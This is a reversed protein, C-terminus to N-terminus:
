QIDEDRDKRYKETFDGSGQNNNNNSEVQRVRNELNELRALILRRMDEYWAPPAESQPKNQTTEVPPPNYFTGENPQFMTVRNNSPPVDQQYYSEQPTQRQPIPIPQSPPQTYPHYRKPENSNPAPAPTVWQFTKCTRTACGKYPRGANAGGKSVGYAMPMGCQCQEM